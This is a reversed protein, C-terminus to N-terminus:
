FAIKIKNVSIKKFRVITDNVYLIKWTHEYKSGNADKPSFKIISDSQPVWISRRDYYYFRGYTERQSSRTKMIRLANFKILHKEGNFKAVKKYEVWNTDNSANYIWIGYIQKHLPKPKKKYDLSLMVLALTFFIFLRM